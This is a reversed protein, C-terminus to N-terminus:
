SIGEGSTLRGNGSLMWSVVSRQAAWALRRLTTRNSMTLIPLAPSRPLIPLSKISLSPSLPNHLKLTVLLFPIKNPILIKLYHHYYISFKFPM